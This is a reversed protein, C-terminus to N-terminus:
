SRQQLADFGWETQSLLEFSKLIRPEFEIAMGYEFGNYQLSTDEEDEQWDESEKSVCSEACCTSVDASVFLGVHCGVRKYALRKSKRRVFGEVIEAASRDRPYKLGKFPFTIVLM